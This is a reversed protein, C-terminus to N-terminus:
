RIYELWDMDFRDRVVPWEPTGTIRWSDLFKLDQLIATEADDLLTMSHFWVARGSRYAWRSSVSEEPCEPWWSSGMYIVGAEALEPSDAQILFHSPFELEAVEIGVGILWTNM